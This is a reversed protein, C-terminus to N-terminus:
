VKPVRIKLEPYWPSFDGANRTILGHRRSAFAGIMLDAVPRKVGRSQRRRETYRNWGAQAAETDGSNWSQDYAIGALDLFRQQEDWDGGFLAGLEIATVPCIALGEGRLKTLLEASPRGFIPDHDFVDIVICTDVVWM